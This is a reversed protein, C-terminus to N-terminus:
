NTGYTDQYVEKKTKELDAQLQAETLGQQEAEEGLSRVLNRHAAQARERWM